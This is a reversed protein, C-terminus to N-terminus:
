ASPTQTFWNELIIEAAIADIAAADKRRANGQARRSAFRQAAEGSTHREDILRVPRQYRAELGAAFDRAARSAPQEAGDLTLPLGVIFLPPRWDQVLGDIHAWDPGNGGNIVTTLARVGSLRNGIAVGILRSGFDFGLISDAPSVAPADPTGPM